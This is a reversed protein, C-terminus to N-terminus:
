WNKLVIKKKKKLFSNKAYKSNKEKELNLDILKPLKFKTKNKYCNYFLLNVNTRM